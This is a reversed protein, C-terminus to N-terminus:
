SFIQGTIPPRLIGPSFFQSYMEIQAFLVQNEAEFEARNLNFNAPDELFWNIEPLKSLAPTKKSPDGPANESLAATLEKKLYCSGKCCSSRVFRKECLNQAIYQRNLAFSVVIGVPRFVHALIIFLLIATASFRM